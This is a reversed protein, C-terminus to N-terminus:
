FLQTACRVKQALGGVVLCGVCQRNDGVKRDGDSVVTILKSTESLPEETLHSLFRTGYNMTYLAHIYRQM